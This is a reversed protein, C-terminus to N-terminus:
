VSKKAVIVISTGFPPAIFNELPLYFRALHDFTRLKIKSVIKDGLVNGSFWWGIAGLFNIERCSIIKFKNDILLRKLDGKRYRRFHGIASDIRGYLFLNAPVLLILLKNPKLLQHINKLASEDDKVHELVNLCVVTDFKKNKFFYHGKEIDGLGVTAKLKLKEKAIKIYSKEIDLATVDGYQALMPSFNGIGCGVELIKGNLFRKFLGFTWRNYWLAQSMSELTRQGNLQIRRKNM